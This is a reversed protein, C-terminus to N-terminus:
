RAVPALLYRDGSEDEVYGLRGPICSIVVPECHGVLAALAAELAMTTRDLKPDRAILYCESPAGHQRLLALVGAATQAAKAVLALCRPDIDESGGLRELLERRRKGALLTHWRERRSVEIFADVFATEHDEM